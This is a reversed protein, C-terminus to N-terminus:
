WMEEREGTRMGVVVVLWMVVKRRAEGEEGVVVVPLWNGNQRLVRQKDYRARFCPSVARVDWKAEM